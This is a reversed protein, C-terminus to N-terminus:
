SPDLEDGYIAARAQLSEKLGTAAGKAKLLRILAKENTQQTTRLNLKLAVAEALYEKSQEGSSSINKFTGQAQTEANCAISSMATAFTGTSATPFRYQTRNAIDSAVLFPNTQTLKLRADSRTRSRGRSHTDRHGEASRFRNRSGNQREEYRQHRLRSRHESDGLNHRHSQNGRYSRPELRQRSFGLNRTGSRNRYHNRSRSIIRSDEHARPRRDNRSRSRSAIRTRSRQRHSHNRQRSRPLEEEGISGRPSTPKATSNNRKGRDGSRSNRLQKVDETRARTGSRRVSKPPESRKEEVNKSAKKIETRGKKKM